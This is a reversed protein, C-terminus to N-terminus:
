SPEPLAPPIKGGLIFFDIHEATELLERIEPKIEVALDADERKDLILRTKALDRYYTIALGVAHLRSEQNTSLNTTM